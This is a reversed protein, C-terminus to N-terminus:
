REREPPLAGIVEVEGSSGGRRGSRGGWGARCRAPQQLATGPPPCPPQSGVVLGQVQGLQGAVLLVAPGPHGDVVLVLGNGVEQDILDVAGGVGLLDRDM